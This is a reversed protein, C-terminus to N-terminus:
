NFQIDSFSKCIIVDPAPQCPYKGELFYLSGIGANRGADIDIDKDGILISLSLDINYETAAKLLMGPNPKRDYSEKKYKGIGYKPHYPCFYVSSIKINHKNFEAIMWNTLNHFDSEAYYGRAIGAQNTIVIIIYGLEEARKCLDFIGGIFVFNEPKHVYGNDINIVGDRDLFLAKKM